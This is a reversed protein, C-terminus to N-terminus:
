LVCIGALYFLVSPLRLVIESNGFLRVWGSLLFYYLPPSVDRSLSSVIQKLSENAILATNAEDLWVSRDIGYTAYLSALLIPSLQAPLQLMKMWGREGVM